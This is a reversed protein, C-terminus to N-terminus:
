CQTQVAEFTAFSLDYCVLMVIQVSTKCWERMLKYPNYSVYM